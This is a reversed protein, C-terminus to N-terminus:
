ETLYDVIIQPVGLGMPVVLILPNRKRESYECGYLASTDEGSSPTSTQLEAGGFRIRGVQIDSLREVSQYILIPVM